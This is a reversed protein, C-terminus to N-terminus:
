SLCNDWDPWFTEKMRICYERLNQYEENILKEYPSGPAAWLFQVLMGFVACDDVCPEDGLLYKNKGIVMSLAALDDEIIHFIQDPTHRGLGQGWCSTHTKPIFNIAKVLKVLSEQFITHLDRGETYLYRWHLLGWYAHEDMLIRAMTGVAKQDKNYEAGAKKFKKALFEIILQSDEVHEGNLTIWPIKGKAGIPYELDIQYKINAMRLYTELKLVFPSCNPVIKGAPTTHVIVVDKPSDKWKNLMRRHARNQVFQTGFKCVTFYGGAAILVVAPTYDWVWQPVAKKLADM